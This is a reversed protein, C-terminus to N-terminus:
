KRDSDLFALPSFLCLIAIRDRPKCKSGEFCYWRVERSSGQGLAWRSFLPEDVLKRRTGFGAFTFCCRQSTYFTVLKWCLGNSQQVLMINCQSKKLNVQTCSFHKYDKLLLNHMDGIESSLASPDLLKYQVYGDYHDLGGLGYGQLFLSTVRCYKSSNTLGDLWKSVCGWKLNVDRLFAQRTHDQFIRWCKGTFVKGLHSLHNTFIRPWNLREHTITPNSETLVLDFRFKVTAAGTQLLCWLVQQKLLVCASLFIGFCVQWAPETCVDVEDFLPFVARRQWARWWDSSREQSGVSQVCWRRGRRGPRHIEWGEASRFCLSFEKLVPFGSSRFTLVECDEFKWKILSQGLLEYRRCFPLRNAMLKVWTRPEQDDFSCRWFESTSRWFKVKLEHYLTVLACVGHADTWLYRLGNPWIKQEKMWQLKTLLKQVKTEM